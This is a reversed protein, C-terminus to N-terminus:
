FEIYPEPHANYKSKAVIRIARKQLKFMRNSQYGWAMICYNIHPLILSNYLLIAYTCARDFSRVFSRVCQVCDDEFVFRMHLSSALGM